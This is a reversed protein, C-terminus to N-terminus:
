KYPNTKYGLFSFSNTLNNKRLYDEIVAQQDGVGLIYVHNNIGEDVLKKHIRALRDFGKVEAVKGVSCINIV